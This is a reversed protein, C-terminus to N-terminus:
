LNWTRPRSFPPQRSKYYLYRNSTMALPQNKPPLADLQLIVIDWCLRAFPPKEYTYVNRWLWTGSAYHPLIFSVDWPQAASEYMGHKM